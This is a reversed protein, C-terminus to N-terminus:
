EIDDYQYKGNPLKEMNSAVGSIILRCKECMVRSLHTVLRIVKDQESLEKLDDKMYLQNRYKNFIKNIKNISARKNSPSIGSIIINLDDIMDDYELLEETKPKYSTDSMLGRRYRSVNMNSIGDNIGKSHLYQTIKKAIDTDTYKKDIMADIKEKLNYKLIKAEVL